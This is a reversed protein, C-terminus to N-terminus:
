LHIRNAKSLGTLLLHVGERAGMHARLHTLVHLSVM